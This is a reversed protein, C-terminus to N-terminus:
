KIQKLLFKIDTYIPIDTIKFYRAIGFWLIIVFATSFVRWFFMHVAEFSSYNLLFSMLVIRLVNFLFLALFSILIISIRKKPKINPISLMLFFLLFFASGGICAPIIEILNNQLLIFNQLVIAPQFISILFKSLYITPTTFIFYFVSLNIGVILILLYRAFLSTLKNM